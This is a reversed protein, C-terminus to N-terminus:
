VLVKGISSDKARVPHRINTQVGTLPQTCKPCVNWDPEVPMACNPCAPRLKTGCKPCVVFQEKVPADCKPCRLNSYNGRVLLYVILGILTPAMAAVLGWLIANMGRRSADRYVYVGIIFPLVITIALVIFMPIVALTSM